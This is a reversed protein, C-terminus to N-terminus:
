KADSGSAPLVTADSGSATDTGYGKWIGNADFVCIKGGIVRTGTVMIGSKDFYYWSNNIKQWTNKAMWGSTDGFVWGANTKTWSGIYKYTWAGSKNLWYGNRWESAAM